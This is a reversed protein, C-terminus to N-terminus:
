ESRESIVWWTRFRGHDDTGYWDPNGVRPSLRIKALCKNFEPIDVGMAMALYDDPVNYNKRLKKIYMVKLDDPMRSFEAWGMPAGLRYTVCEGDMARLQKNTLYDSTFKVAGGKGNRGRRHRAGNALKKQERKEEMYDQVEESFYAM